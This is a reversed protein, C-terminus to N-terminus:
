TGLEVPSKLGKCNLPPASIGNYKVALIERCLGGEGGSEVDDCAKSPYFIWFM